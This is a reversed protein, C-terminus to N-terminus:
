TPNSFFHWLFQSNAVLLSSMVFYLLGFLPLLWYWDHRNSRQSTICLKHHSPIFFVLSYSVITLGIIHHVWRCVKNAVPNPVHCTQLSRAMTVFLCQETVLVLWPITTYLLMVLCYCFIQWSSVVMASLSDLVLWPIAAYLLMVTVSFKVLHFVCQVKFIPYYM